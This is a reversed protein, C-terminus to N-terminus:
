RQIAHGSGARTPDPRVNQDVKMASRVGTEWRPEDSFRPVVHLHAHLGSQDNWGLTYGDPAAREHLAARVALLLRRTATWEEHTLDFPSARHAVPVIVGSWPLVDPNDRPDRTSAYICYHNRIVVEAGRHWDSTCFLCDTDSVSFGQTV